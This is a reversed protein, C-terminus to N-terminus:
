SLQAVGAKSNAVPLLCLRVSFLVVLETLPLSCLVCLLVGM